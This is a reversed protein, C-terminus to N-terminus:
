YSPSVAPAPAFPTPPDGLVVDLRWVGLDERLLVSWTAADPVGNEGPSGAVVLWRGRQEVEDACAGADLPTPEGLGSRAQPDVLQPASGAWAAVSACAEELSGERSLRVGATAEGCDLNVSICASRPPGDPEWGAPPVVSAVEARMAALVSADACASTLLM